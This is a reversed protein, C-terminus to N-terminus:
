HMVHGESGMKALMREQQHLWAWWAANVMGTSLDDSMLYLDDNVRFNKLFNPALRGGSIFGCLAEEFDDRDAM